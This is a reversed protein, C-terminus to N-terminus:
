LWQHKLAYGGDTDPQGNRTGHPKKTGNPWLMRGLNYVLHFGMDMGCGSVKIGGHKQDIISGDAQVYWYDLKTISGDKNGIMLSISRSMGSSSVHNCVTYITQGAKLISRLHKKAQERHMAEGDKRSIPKDDPQYPKGNYSEYAEGQANIFFQPNKFINRTM